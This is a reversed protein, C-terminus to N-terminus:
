LIVYVPFSWVPLAKALASNVTLFSFHVTIILKMTNLLNRIIRYIKERNEETIKVGPNWAQPFFGVATIGLFVIWGIVPSILLEEKSGWRDVAGAANYHGPIKDPLSGWTVGLYISIGLLLILCVLNVAVSYKSYRPKM